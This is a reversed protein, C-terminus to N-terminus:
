TVFNCFTAALPQVSSAIVGSRLLTAHEKWMKTQFTKIAQPTNPPIENNKDNCHFSINSPRSCNQVLTRQLYNRIPLALIIIMKTM